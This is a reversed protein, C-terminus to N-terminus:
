CEEPRSGGEGGLAAADALQALERALAAIKGWNQNPRSVDDLIREALEAAASILEDGTM